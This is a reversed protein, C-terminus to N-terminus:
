VEAVAGVVSTVSGVNLAVSVVVSITIAVDFGAAVILWVACDGDGGGGGDAVSLSSLMTVLSVVLKVYVCLVVFLAIPFTMMGEVLSLTFEVVADFARTCVNAASVTPANVTDVANGAAVCVNVDEDSDDAAAVVARCVCSM